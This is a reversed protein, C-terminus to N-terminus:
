REGIMIQFNEESTKEVLLKTHVNSTYKYVKLYM